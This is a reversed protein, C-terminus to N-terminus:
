AVFDNTEDRLVLAIPNRRFARLNWALASVFWSGNVGARLTSVSALCNEASQLACRFILPARSHEQQAASILVYRRGCLLDRCDEAMSANV